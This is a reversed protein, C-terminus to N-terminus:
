IPFLLGLLTDALTMWLFALVLGLTISRTVDAPSRKPVAAGAYTILALGAGMLLGKGIFLSLELASLFDPFTNWFFSPTIRAESLPTALALLAGFAGIALGALSLLPMALTLSWFLPPFLARDPHLRLTKLARMQGGLGMWGIQAGIASGCRGAMLFGTLIPALRLLSLAVLEPVQNSFGYEVVAAEAQIEMVFGLMLFIMFTLPLTGLGWQLLNRSFLAASPPAFLEGVLLGMRGIADLARGPTSTLPDPPAGEAAPNNVARVEARAIHAALQEQMWILLARHHEEHSAAPEAEWRPMRGDVPSFYYVPFGLRSACAPDHTIIVASMGRRQILQGLLDYVRASSAPDLGTTPEDAILVAPQRILARALAVRRRMGGSLQSPLKRRVHAPELEVERLVADIAADTGPGFPPGFCNAREERSVTLNAEVTREDLLADEQSMVAMSAFPDDGDLGPWGAHGADPPLLGLLTHLFVTKGGGSPGLIVACEGRRLEWTLGDLIRRGGLTKEVRELRLLVTNDPAPTNPDANM